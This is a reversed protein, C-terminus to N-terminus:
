FDEPLIQDAWLATIFTEALEEMNAQQLSTLDELIAETGSDLVDDFRDVVEQSYIGGGTWECDPCRLDVSWSQGAAPAWDVPLVLHSDCAPCVHLDEPEREAVRATGALEFDSAVVHRGVAGPRTVGTTRVRQEM